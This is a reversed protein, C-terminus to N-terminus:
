FAVKLIYTQADNESVSADLLSSLTLQTLPEVAAVYGM